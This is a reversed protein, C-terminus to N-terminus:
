AAIASWHIAMRDVGGMDSAPAFHETSVHTLNDATFCRWDGRELDYYNVHVGDFPQASRPSSESSGQMAAYRRIIEPNRTGIARRINGTSNKLYSFVIVGAAARDFFRSLLILDGSDLGSAADGVLVARLLPATANLGRMTATTAPALSDASADASGSAPTEGDTFTMEPEETRCLLRYAAIMDEDTCGDMLVANDVRYFLINNRTYTKLCSAWATNGTIKMGFVAGVPASLLTHRLENSCQVKQTTLVAVPGRPCLSYTTQGPLARLEHRFEGQANRELTHRFFYFNRM